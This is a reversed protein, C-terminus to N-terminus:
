GGAPPTPPTRFNNYYFRWNQFVYEANTSWLRFQPVYSVTSLGEGTLANRVAYIEYAPDTYCCMIVCREVNVPGVAIYTTDTAVGRMYPNVPEGTAKDYLIGQVTETFDPGAELQSTDSYLYLFVEMQDFFEARWLTNTDISEVNPTVRFTTDIGESKDCGSFVSFMVAFLSIATFIKKMIEIKPPGSVPVGFIFM